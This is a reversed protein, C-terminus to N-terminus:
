CSGRRARACAIVGAGVLVLGSPAPIIPVDLTVYLSPCSVMMINGNLPGWKMIVSSLGGPGGASGFSTGFTVTRAGYSSPTWAASWLTAIPNVTIVTTDSTPFQGFEINVVGTGNPSGNSGPGPLDWVPNVGYGAAPDMNFDGQTGGAGTVDIVGYGIGRLTGTPGGPGGSFPIVTNVAPAMTVSIRLVASEGPELIGNHNGTDEWALGYSLTAATTSAQGFAAGACALLASGGLLARINTM